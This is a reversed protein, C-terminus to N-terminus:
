LRVLHSSAQLLMQRKMLHPVDARGLHGGVRVLGKKDLYPFYHQIVKNIPTKQELLAQYVNPFSQQQSLRLIVIKTSAVEESTLCLPAASQEKAQQRCRYYFRRCWSVVRILKDFSSFTKWLATTDAPTVAMVVQTSELLVLSHFMPSLWNNSTLRLWTPGNWWLDKCVLEKPTLGRSAHDAPNSDTPVHKWQTAPVLDQIEAVRNAVFTKWCSPSKALWGLVVESDSWTFITTPPLDIDQSTSILLRATLLAGCLELKPVSLTKLPAVRTKSTVLSITTSADEYVARLYVVGNYRSMSADAFGHLQLDRITSSQHFYCRPVSHTSLLTIQDKWEKWKVILDAPIPEDWDM